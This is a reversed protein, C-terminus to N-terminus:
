LDSAFTPRDLLRDGLVHAVMEARTGVGLKAFIRRLHTSVTWLSVELVEAIAKNPLGNAVLRCIEQERPSLSVQPTRSLPARRVLAYSVGDVEVGLVIEETVVQEVDQEPRGGAHEAQAVLRRVLEEVSSQQTDGVLFAADNTASPSATM